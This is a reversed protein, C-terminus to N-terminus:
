AGKGPKHAREVILDIDILGSPCADGSSPTREEEAHLGQGVHLPCCLDGLFHTLVGFQLAWNEALNEM